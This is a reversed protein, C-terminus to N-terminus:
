YSLATHLPLLLFLSFPNIPAFAETSTLNTMQRSAILFSQFPWDYALCCSFPSAAPHLLLFLSFTIGYIGYHRRLNKVRPNHLLLFLSFPYRSIRWWWRYLIYNTHLLLFLSFTTYIKFRPGEYKVGTSSAILFSQFTLRLPQNITSRNRRAKRFCYSFVSLGHHYHQTTEILERPPPSAILFSQFNCCWPIHVVVPSRKSLGSAILFSQFSQIWRKSRGM